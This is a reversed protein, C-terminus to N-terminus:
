LKEGTYFVTLSKTETDGNENYSTIYLTNQGEVLRTTLSFSGDDAAETVTNGLDTDLVITNSKQSKGSVKIEQSTAISEDFPDTIELFLAHEQKQSPTVIINTIPENQTSSKKKMFSPLTVVSVAVLAGILFGGSIAIALDKKM